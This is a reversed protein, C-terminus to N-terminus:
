CRSLVRHQDGNCDENEGKGQDDPLGFPKANAPACRETGEDGQRCARVTSPCYACAPDQYEM